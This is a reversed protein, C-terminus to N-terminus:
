EAHEGEGLLMDALVKIQNAVHGMTGAHGYSRPSNAQETKSRMLGEALRALQAKVDAEAALFAAAAKPTRTPNTNNAM